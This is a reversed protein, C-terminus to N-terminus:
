VALKSGSFIEEAASRLTDQLGHDKIIVFNPDTLRNHQITKKSTLLIIHIDKNVTGSMRLASILANGPLRPTEMGTILVDFKENLLMGLAEYGNTSYSFRIPFDAFANLCIDRHLHSTAVMLGHFRTTAASWLTQLENQIDSFDQKATTITALCKRILDIFSLWVNVQEKKLNGLAEEQVINLHDEFKHCITSIVPLNHTGASGKLSHVHRYLNEFNENFGETAGKQLSLILTEMEDLRYPVESIFNLRIDRLLAEINVNSHSSDSKSSSM